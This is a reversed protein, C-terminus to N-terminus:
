RIGEQFAKSAKPLSNMGAASMSVAMLHKQKIIHLRRTLQAPIPQLM